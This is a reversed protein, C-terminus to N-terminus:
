ETNMAEAEDLNHLEGETYYCLLKVRFESLQHYFLKQPVRTLYNSSCLILLVNFYWCTSVLLHAQNTTLTQGL